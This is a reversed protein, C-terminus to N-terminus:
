SGIEATAGTFNRKLCSFDGTRRSKGSFKSKQKGNQSKKHFVQWNQSKEVPKSRGKGFCFNEVSKGSMDSISALIRWGFRVNNRISDCVVLVSM